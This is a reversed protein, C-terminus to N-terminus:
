LWPSESNSMLDQIMNKLKEDGQLEEELGEWAECQVMAITAYQM